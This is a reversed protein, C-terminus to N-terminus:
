RILFILLYILCFTLKFSVPEFYAFSAHKEPNPDLGIPYDLLSKDGMLFHPFSILLPAQVCPLINVLGNIPCNYIDKGKDDQTIPCFCENEPSNEISEKKSVYKYVHM